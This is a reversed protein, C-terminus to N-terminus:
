IIATQFERVNSKILRHSLIIQVVAGSLEVLLAGYIGIIPILVYSSCILITFVICAFVLQQHYLRLATMAFWQFLAITNIGAVFLSASLIASYKAIETNYFTSLIFEGMVSSISVTIVTTYMVFRIMDMYYKLFESSNRNGRAQGLKSMKVQGYSSALLTYAVGFYMISAYIGLEGVGLFYEIAYRPINTNLSCIVAIFALPLADVIITQISRFNPIRKKNSNSKAKYIKEQKIYQPIDYLFLVESWAIFMVLTVVQVSIKGLLIAGILCILLSTTRLILSQGVYPAIGEKQFYGYLIDSISEIGKALALFIIANLLPADDVFWASGAILVIITVSSCFFRAAIYNQAQYQDIADSAIVLRLRLSSFMFFPACISLALSFYGAQETGSMKILSILCLWLGAAYSANGAALWVVNSNLAFLNRYRASRYWKRSM